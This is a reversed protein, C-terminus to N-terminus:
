LEADLLRKITDLLDRPDFPKTLYADGTVEILKKFGVDESLVTLFLVPIRRLAPRARLQKCLQFGDHGPLHIDLIVLDPNYAEVMELFENGGALGIVEYGKPLVMRLAARIEPDDDVVMIVVSRARRPKGAPAQPHRRDPETVRDDGSRSTSM